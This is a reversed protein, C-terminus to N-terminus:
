EAVAVEADVRGVVPLDDPDHERLEGLLAAAIQDLDGLVLTFLRLHRDARDSPVRLIREVLEGLVALDALVVHMTGLSLEVLQGRLVGVGDLVDDLGLFGLQELDSSVEVRDAVPATARSAPCRDRGATVSAGAGAVLASGLVERAPRSRRAAIRTPSPQPATIMALKNTYRGLKATTTPMTM